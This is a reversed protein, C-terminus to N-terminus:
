IDEVGQMEETRKLEWLTFPCTHVKYWTHLRPTQSYLIESKNSLRGSQQQHYSVSQIHKSQIKYHGLGASKIKMYITFSAAMTHLKWHRRKPFYLGNSVVKMNWNTPFLTCGEGTLVPPSAPGFRGPLTPQVTPSPCAIHHHAETARGGRRKQLKIHYFKTLFPM